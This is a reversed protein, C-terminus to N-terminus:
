GAPVHQPCFSVAANRVFNDAETATAGMNVFTEVLITFTAGEEFAQCVDRAMQLQAEDPIPPALGSDKVEDLFTTEVPARTDAEPSPAVPTSAAPAPAPAESIPAPPVETATSAASPAPTASSPAADATPTATPRASASNDAAAPRGFVIWGVIAAIVAAFVLVGIATGGRRPGPKRRTGPKVTRQTTVDQERDAAPGAPRNASSM